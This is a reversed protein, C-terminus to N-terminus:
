DGICVCQSEKLDKYPNHWLVKSHVAEVVLVVRGGDRERRKGVSSRRTREALVKLMLSAMGLEWVLDSAGMIM